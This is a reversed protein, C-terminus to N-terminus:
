FFRQVNLKIVIGADIVMGNALNDLYHKLVNIKLNIISVIKLDILVDQIKLEQLLQAPKKINNAIQFIVINQHIYM